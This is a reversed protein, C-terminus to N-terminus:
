QREALLDASSCVLSFCSIRVAPADQLSARRALLDNVINHFKDPVQPFADAFGQFCLYGALGNATMSLIRAILVSAFRGLIACFGPSM